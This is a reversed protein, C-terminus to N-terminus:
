KIVVNIEFVQNIENYLYDICLNLFLNENSEIALNLNLYIVLPLDNVVMAVM